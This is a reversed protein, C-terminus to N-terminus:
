FVIRWEKEHAKDKFPSLPLPQQFETVPEDSDGMKEAKPSEASSILSLPSLGLMESFYELPEKFDHPELPTATM